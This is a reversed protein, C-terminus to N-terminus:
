AIEELSDKANKLIEKYEKLRQLDDVDPELDRFLLANYFGVDHKFQHIKTPGFVEEMNSLEEAIDRLELLVSRM